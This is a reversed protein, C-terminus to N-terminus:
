NKKIERYKIIPIQVNVYDNIQGYYKLYIIKFDDIINIGIEELLVNNTIETSFKSFYLEEILKEM